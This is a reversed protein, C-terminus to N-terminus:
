GNFTEWNQLIEELLEDDNLNAIRELELLDNMRDIEVTSLNIKNKLKQLEKIEKNTM